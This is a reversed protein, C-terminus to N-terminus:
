SERRPRSPDPREPREYEPDIEILRAEIARLRTDYQVFKEDIQKAVDQDIVIKQPTKDREVM